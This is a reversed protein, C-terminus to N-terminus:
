TAMQAILSHFFYCYFVIRLSLFRTLDISCLRNKFFTKQADLTTNYKTNARPNGKRSKPVPFKFKEIKLENKREAKIFVWWFVIQMTATQLNVNILTETASIDIM